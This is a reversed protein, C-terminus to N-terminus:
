LLSALPVLAALSSLSMFATQGHLTSITIRGGALKWHNDHDQVAAVCNRDGYKQIFLIPEIVSAISVTLALYNVCGFNATLPSARELAEDCLRGGATPVRMHVEHYYCRCKMLTSLTERGRVAFWSPVVTLM